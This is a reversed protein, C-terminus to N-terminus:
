KLNLKFLKNLVYKIPTIKKDTEGRLYAHGGYKYHHKKVIEIKIDNCFPKIKWKAPYCYNPNLVLIDKNLLYKNIMCQDHHQPIQDNEIDEKTMKSIEKSMTMFDKVRGGNFGGMYYNGKSGYPIYANSKENRCYPHEDPEEYYHDAWITAMLGQEETPFIEEGVPKRFECNANIYYCYDYDKIDEELRLFMDYRLLSDFPWGLHKQPIIVVDENKSYDFVENDTFVFFTKDHNKLLYKKATEYFGKFFTIYRGTAIYFIAIKM